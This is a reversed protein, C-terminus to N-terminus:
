LAVEAVIHTGEGPASEVLLTGGLQVMRERMLTLGLSTAPRAAPDFGAGDDEVSLTIRDERRVLSLHVNAAKAHRITNSLAEQAIRYLALAKDRDFDAPIENHFFHFALESAAQQEDILAALSPVLGFYDLTDPRLGRALAKIETQVQDVKQGAAVLQDRCAEADGPLDRAAANLTLRLTTLLQGTHDHLDRSIDLRVGELLNILERSLAKREEVEGELREHLALLEANAEALRRTREAVRRELGDRAEQLAKEAEKRAALEGTLRRTRDAVMASLERAELLIRGTLPRLLVGFGLLCLAYVGATSALMAALETRVPAYLLRSDASLALGWGTDAVPTYAIVTDTAALIGARGALAQGLGKDMAPALAQPLPKPEVLFTRVADKERLALALRAAPDEGPPQLIKGALQATDVAVLDTAVRSGDRGTVPAGVVICLKGSLMVPASVLVKGSGEPPIRWANEPIAEGCSVVPEGDRSLRTIGVVDASRKMADALRPGAYAAFHERSVRGAYVDELVDRIQTRSTIQRALDEARRYWEGIALAKTEAVHALGAQESRTLRGLLPVITAMAVGVALALLTAAFYLFLRRGLRGPPLAAACPVEADSPPTAM